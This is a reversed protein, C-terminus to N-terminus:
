LSDKYNKIIKVIKSYGHKKAIEFATLGNKNVLNINAKKKLLLKVIEINDHETAYMLATYGREDVVDINANKELLMKAIEVNNKEKSYTLISYVDKNDAGADYGYQELIFEAIEISNYMLATRGTKDIVNVDAARDLLLKTIERNNILVAAMLATDGQNTILNVDAGKALLLKVIEINDNIAACMLMNNGAKNTSNVDINTKHDLFYRLVEIDGYVAVSFLFHMIDNYTYNENMASSKIRRLVELESPYIQKNKDSSFITFALVVHDINVVGLDTAISSYADFILEAIFDIDDSKIEGDQDNANYYYYDHGDKYLAVAHDISKILIWRHEYIVIEQLLKKLQNKDLLATISYEKHINESHRVGILANIKQEIITKNKIKFIMSEQFYRVLLAFKKINKCDSWKGLIDAVTSDFWDGNELHSFQLWKSYLWVIALGHCNGMANLEKSACDPRGDKILSMINGQYQGYEAEFEAFVNGSCFLSMLIPLLIFALVHKKLM